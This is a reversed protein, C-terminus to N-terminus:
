PAASGDITVMVPADQLDTKIKVEHKFDGAKRFVCKFSVVQVPSPAASPPPDLQMGDGLGEVGLIRFPKNGRVVVRRTLTEGIKVAGLSLATPSVTLNSQIVGEVLVPLLPSAPDNTKLFLDGKLTGLPANAKLTVRVRYGVQGPRRYLENLSVEVPLDKVSAETVQWDLVGAYEVDVVQSAQQGRTVTGFSVQGPNFVIDARSNASVRLQASSIFDPGVTVTIGVTKLGTFRRADMTVDITTSERPELVRKASLASVCGCGSKISTIEMRVAYINTIVFRHSLQAGRPVSGFDHSVGEKFLKEAWASQAWAPAVGFAVVFLAVLAHRLNM